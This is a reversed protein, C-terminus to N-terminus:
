EKAGPDPGHEAWKQRYGDRDKHGDEAEQNPFRTFQRYIYICSQHILAAAKQNTARRRSVGGEGGM